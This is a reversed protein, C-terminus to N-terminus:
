TAPRRDPQRGQQRHRDLRGQGVDRGSVAARQRHLRGELRRRRLRARRRRRHVPQDQKLMAPMKVDNGADGPKTPAPKLTSRVNGAAKMKPGGAHHRRRRTSPLRSTSSTRRRCGRSRAASRSCARTSTTTPRRGGARGDQRGRVERRARVERRRDREDGAEAGVDLMAPTPPATSTAATSATSSAAPSCRARHSGQGADGTRTSRQPAFPARGAAGPEPPFTLLVNERGLLATPTSGDPALTIDITHRRRDAARSARTAPSRSRRTAPLWPTSCRSAM